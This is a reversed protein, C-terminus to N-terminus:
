LIIRCSTLSMNLSLDCNVFNTYLAVSDILKNQRYIDNNGLLCVYLLKRKEGKVVPSFTWFTM